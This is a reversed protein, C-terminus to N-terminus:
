WRIPSQSVDRCPASHKQGVPLSKRGGQIEKSMTYNSLDFGFLEKEESELKNLEQAKRVENDAMQELKAKREADTLSTDLAILEIQRGIEGLIEECEGISGEFVGIRSLCRDYIDADM